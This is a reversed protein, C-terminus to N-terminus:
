GAREDRGKPTAQAHLGQHHQRCLWRVALPKDYDDHHADTRSSGCVECPQRVIKGSGIHRNVLWRAEHRKRLAPDHRYTRMKAAKRSKLEADDKHNEHFKRNYARRKERYAPDARRKAGYKRWSERRRESHKAM